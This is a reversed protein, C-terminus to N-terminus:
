QLAPKTNWIRLRTTDGIISRAPRKSRKSKKRITHLSSGHRSEWASASFLTGSQGAPLLLLVSSPVTGSPGDTDLDIGGTDIAGLPLGCEAPHSKRYILGCAPETFGAATFQSWALASLSQAPFLDGSEEASSKLGLRQGAAELTHSLASGVVGATSSLVFRRRDM